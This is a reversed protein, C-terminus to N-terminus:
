RGANEHMRTLPVDNDTSSATVAPEVDDVVNIRVHRCARSNLFCNLNRDAVFKLLKLVDDGFV